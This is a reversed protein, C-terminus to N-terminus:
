ILLTLHLSPHPHPDPPHDSVAQRLLDWSLQCRGSSFLAAMHPGPSITGWASPVALAFAQPPFLISTNLSYFSTWSDPTSHPTPSWLLHAQLPPCLALDHHVQLNSIAKILKIKRKWKLKIPTYNIQLTTNTEHTCCLSDTIRICISM